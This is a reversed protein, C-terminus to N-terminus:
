GGLIMRVANAAIIINLVLMVAEYKTVPWM